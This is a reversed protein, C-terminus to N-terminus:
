GQSLTTEDSRAPSTNVNTQVQTVLAMMIYVARCDSYCLSRHDLM